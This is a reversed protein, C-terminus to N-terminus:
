KTSRPQMQAQLAAHWYDGGAHFKHCTACDSTVKGAVAHAGVHCERCKEINPMAIDKAKSSRTVDHCTVCSETSHKAHTFLAQPMWVRALRVPAVQWGSKDPKRSIYHCTSCVERTQYLERLSLQAKQEALRLAQQREPYSVESGPRMRPLNPPPNVDPPVDGLVLRAYFERLMTAIEAEDGHPVQRKTVKPEFALSHCQQCHKEMVIPAMLRGGEDPQHCDGCKLVTRKKSEPDRIGRSDVHLAHDFKLNSREVMGEAATAGQRVRTVEKPRDANLLSLRFAPHDGRFDTINGSRADTAVSKVDRHCDTCQEQARPAMQMGKHDRHCEACRTDQFAVGRPGTLEVPPVHEKISKHCAVCAQDRVQIFPFQHCTRCDNGFIQHSRSVPGPNWARTFSGAVAPMIESAVTATSATNNPETDASRNGFLDPALPILLCLLLIGFFALYSLRRKSIRPAHLLVRRLASSGQGAIRKNPATWKSAM